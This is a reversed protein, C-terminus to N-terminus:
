NEKGTFMAYLNDTLEALEEPHSDVYEIAKNAVKYCQTNDPDAEIMKAYREQVLYNKAVRETYQREDEFRKRAESELVTQVHYFDRIWNFFEYSIGNDCPRSTRGISLATAWDKDRQKWEEETVANDRDTNNWYDYREAGNACLASRLYSEIKKNQTYVMVLTYNGLPLLVLSANLEAEPESDEYRLANNTDRCMNKTVMTAFRFLNGDMEKEYDKLNLNVFEQADIGTRKYFLMYQYVRSLLRKYSEDVITQIDEQMNMLMKNITFLDKNEIKYGNHIATSM